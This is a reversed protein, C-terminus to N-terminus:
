YCETFTFTYMKEEGLGPRWLQLAPAPCKSDPSLSETGTWVSSLPPVQEGLVSPARDRSVDEPACNQCCGQLTMKPLFGWGGEVDLQTGWGGGESPPRTQQRAKLLCGTLPNRWFGRVRAVEEQDKEMRWGWGAALQLGWQGASHQPDPGM